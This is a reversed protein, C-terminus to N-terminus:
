RVIADCLLELSQDASKCATALEYLAADRQVHQVEQLAETRFASSFADKPMDFPLQSLPLLVMANLQGQNALNSIAQVIFAYM